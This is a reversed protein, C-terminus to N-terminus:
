RRDRGLAGRGRAPLLGARGERRDQERAEVEQEEVLRRVVEIEVAELPQLTEDVAVGAREHDDAV